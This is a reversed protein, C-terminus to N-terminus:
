FIGEPRNQSVIIQVKFSLDSVFELFVAKNDHTMMQIVQEGQHNWTM